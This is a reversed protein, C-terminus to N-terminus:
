QAVILNASPPLPPRFAGPPWEVAFDGQRWSSYCRRCEATFEEQVEIERLRIEEDSSIIFVKRGRKKPTHPKMIPQRCLVGAGIVTKGTDKRKAAAEAEMERLREIIRDNVRRVECPDEIGFYRLWENPSRAIVHQERNCMQLLRCVQTEEADDPAPSSLPPISPLRIWTVMERSQGDIDGMHELFERWSSVGPYKEICEELNDKGPNSYLYAIKEIADALTGLRAVMPRGEWIRMHNKGLLRKLADTIKKQLECYFNRCQAADKTVVVFHAHSGNWLDHCLVVKDDRQTRALASKIVLAMVKRTVLPLGEQARFCIDYCNGSVFRRPTRPM